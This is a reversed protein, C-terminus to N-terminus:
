ILWDSRAFYELECGCPAADNTHSYFVFCPIVPHPKGVDDFKGQDTQIYNRPLQKLYFLYIFRRQRLHHSSESM